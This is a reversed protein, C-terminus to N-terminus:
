GQSVLVMKEYRWLYPFQPSSKDKLDKKPIRSSLSPKSVDAPKKASSKEAHRAAVSSGTGKTNRLKRKNLEATHALSLSDLM